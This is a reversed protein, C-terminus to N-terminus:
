KQHGKAGTDSFTITSVAFKNLSHNAYLKADFSARFFDIGDFATTCRWNSCTAKAYNM